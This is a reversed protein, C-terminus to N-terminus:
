VVNAKIVEYKDYMEEIYTRIISIKSMGLCRLIFIDKKEEELNIRITSILVIVGLSMIFITLVSSLNQM